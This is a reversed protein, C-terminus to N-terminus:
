LKFFIPYLSVSAILPTIFCQFTIEQFCAFSSDILAKIQEMIKPEYHIDRTFCNSSNCHKVDFELLNGIKTIGRLFECWAKIPLQGKNLGDPDLDRIPIEYFSKKDKQNPLKEEM